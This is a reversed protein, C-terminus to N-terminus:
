IDEDEFINSSGSDSGSKLNDMLKIYEDTDKVKEFLNTNKASRM